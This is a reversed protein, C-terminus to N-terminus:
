TLTILFIMATVLGMGSAVATAIDLIKRTVYANSAANPYKPKFLQSAREPGMTHSSAPGKGIKYIERISKM